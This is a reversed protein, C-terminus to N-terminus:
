KNGAAKRNSKMINWSRKIIGWINTDSYVLVNSRYFALSIITLIGVFILTVIISIWIELHPISTGAIRFPMVFPSFLPIHSFVVALSSDPQTFAFLGVYFGILALFVIPTVVKNVDELKTALSGLFAAIVIYMFVGLVLFILSYGLLGGLVEALDVSELFSQVIDHNRFYFFVGGSVAIYIMVQTALVLCVGLLKGFFHQTATASSLIIEMIRTGKENAIEEAIISAYSMIFLFIAINVIYASGQQLITDASNDDVIQGDGVSVIEENVTVPQMLAQTEEASLGLNQAQINLQIQSLVENLVPIQGSLSDNHIMEARISEGEVQVELYGQIEENALAEDAQSINTIEENVNFPLDEQNLSESIVPNDTIVALEDTSSGGGFSQGIFYSILFIVGMFLIPGFVMALFGFSKINKRYVEKTIVWMKNM